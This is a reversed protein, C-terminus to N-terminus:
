IFFCVQHWKGKHTIYINLNALMHSFRHHRYLKTKCSCFFLSFSVLQFVMNTISLIASHRWQDHELNWIVPNDIGKPCFAACSVACFLCWRACVWFWVSQNCNSLCTCEIVLHPTLTLWASQNWICTCPEQKSKDPAKRWITSLRMLSLSWQHTEFCM